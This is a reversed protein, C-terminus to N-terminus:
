NPTADSCLLPVSAQSMEADLPCHQLSYAAMV